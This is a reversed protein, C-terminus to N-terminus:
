SQLARAPIGRRRRWWGWLQHAALFPSAALMLAAILGVLPAILGVSLIVMMAVVPMVAAMPVLGLGVAATALWAGISWVWAHPRGARAVLWLTIAGVLDAVMLALFGGSM